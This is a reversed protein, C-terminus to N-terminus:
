QPESIRPRDLPVTSAYMLGTTAVINLQLLVLHSFMRCAPQGPPSTSAPSIVIPMSRKAGPVRPADLDADDRQRRDDEEEHQEGSFNGTCSRTAAPTDSGRSARPTRCGRRAPRRTGARRQLEHVEEGAHLREGLVGVVAHGDDHQGVPRLDSNM